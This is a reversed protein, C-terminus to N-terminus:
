RIVDPHFLVKDNIRFDRILKQGAQGRIFASYERAQAIRTHPHKDPNVLIIHYPNFLSEDNEFVIALEVKDIYALYTGRDSITYALKDNAIQLVAGMGQGVSLYWDGEPELGAMKWLNKEKKHTGSDDGRSIFVSKTQSLQKMATTIATAQRLKAPDHEPGLIVFDNHMVAEREIGQGANVFDIEAVPAHVFVLDVDGNQGLRLAKGTGVAIVDVKIGYQQEFVPNLIDLLGSNQTSTTTAMKIRQEATSHQATSLSLLVIFLKIFVNM